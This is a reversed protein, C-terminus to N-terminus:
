ERTALYERISAALAEPVTWSYPFYLHNFVNPEEILLRDAEAPHTERLWAEWAALDALALPMSRDPPDPDVRLMELRAVLGGDFEFTWAEGIEIQLATWRTRVDCTIAAASVTRCSGLQAKMGGWYLDLVDMWGYQGGFAESVSQAQMYLEGGGDYRMDIAPFAFVGDPTMLARMRDSDRANV